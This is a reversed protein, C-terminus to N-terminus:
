LSNIDSRNWSITLAPSFCAVGFAANAKEAGSVLLYAAFCCSFRSLALKRTIIYHACSFLLRRRLRCKSKRYFSISVRRQPRCGYCFVACLRICIVFPSSVWLFFRLQWQHFPDSSLDFRGLVPLPVQLFRDPLTHRLSYSVDKASQSVFYSQESM